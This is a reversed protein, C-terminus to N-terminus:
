FFFLLHVLVTSILVYSVTISSNINWQCFLLVHRESFFFFLLFNFSIFFHWWRFPLILFSLFLDAQSLWPDETVQVRFSFLCWSILSSCFFNQLLLSLIFSALTYLWIWCVFFMCSFFYTLLFCFSITCFFSM